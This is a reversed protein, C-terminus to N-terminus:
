PAGRLSRGVPAPAPRGTPKFTAKIAGWSTPEVSTATEITFQTVYGDDGASSGTLANPDFAFLSGDLPHRRRRAWGASDFQTTFAPGFIKVEILLNQNGNYSFNDNIDIIIDFGNGASSLTLFGTLVLTVDNGLNNAYTLSINPPASNTRPPDRHRDPGLNFPDGFSRTSAIAIKTM